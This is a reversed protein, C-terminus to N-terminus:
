YYELYKKREQIHTFHFANKDILHAHGSIDLDWKRQHKPTTKLAEQFFNGNNSIKSFILIKVKQRTSVAKNFM